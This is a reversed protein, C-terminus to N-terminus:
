YWRHFIAVSFHRSIDYFLHLVSVEAEHILTGNNTASYFPGRTIIFFWKQANELKWNFLSRRRSGLRLIFHMKIQKNIKNQPKAESVKANRHADASPNDTSSTLFPLGVFQAISFDKRSHKCDHLLAHLFDGLRVSSISLIILLVLVKFAIVLSWIVFCSIGPSIIVVPRVRVSVVEVGSNILMVLRLLCTSVEVGIISAVRILVSIIVIEIVSVVKVAIRVVMIVTMAAIRAAVVFSISCADQLTEEFFQFHYFFTERIAGKIENKHLTSHMHSPWFNFSRASSRAPRSKRTQKKFKQSANRSFKEEM